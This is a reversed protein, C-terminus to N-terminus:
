SPQDELAVRGVGEPLNTFYSLGGDGLSDSLYDSGVIRSEGWQLSLM